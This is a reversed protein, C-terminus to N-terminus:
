SHHFVEAKVLDDPLLTGVFTEIAPQLENVYADYKGRLVTKIANNVEKEYIDKTNWGVKQGPIGALNAKVKAFFAADMWAKVTAASLKTFAEAPPKPKAM